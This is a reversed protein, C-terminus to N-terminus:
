EPVTLAYPIGWEKLVRAPKPGRPILCTKRFAEMIKERSFRTALAEALVRTGVGTLLVLVDVGGAFWQEAFDFVAPNDGLPVEKMSPASQPNGGQLAVLDAMTKAHRTEFIVVNLGCLSM